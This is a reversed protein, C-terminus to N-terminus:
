EKVHIRYIHLTGCFSDRDYMHEVGDIWNIESQLYDLYEEEDIVGTNTFSIEIKDMGYINQRVGEDEEDPICITDELILYVDRGKDPVYSNIQDTYCVCNEGETM